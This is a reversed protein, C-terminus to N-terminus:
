ISPRVRGSEYWSGRFGRQPAGRMSPSSSFSPISIPSVLTLLYRTRLRFGGDCVQRVKRSFWTWLKTDTSKKLAGWSLIVLALKTAPCPQRRSAKREQYLGLQRRLFLNEAILAEKSRCAFRIADILLVFCTSLLRVLHVVVFVVM